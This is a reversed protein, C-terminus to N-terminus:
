GWRSNTFMIFFKITVKFHYSTRFFVDTIGFSVSTMLYIMKM